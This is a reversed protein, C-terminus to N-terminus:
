RSIPLRPTSKFLTDVMVNIILFMATKGLNQAILRSMYKISRIFLFVAFNYVYYTCVLLYRRFIIYMHSFHQATAQYYIVMFMIIHM